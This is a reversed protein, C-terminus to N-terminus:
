LSMSHIKGNGQHLFPFILTIMVNGAGTFPFICEVGSQVVAM